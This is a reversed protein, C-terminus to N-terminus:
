LLWPNVSEKQAPFTWNVFFIGIFIFTGGLYVYWKVVEGLLIWGSLVGFLPALFLFASTKGPDGRNLLYFWASYQVISAMVALWLVIFISMANLTLVPKELTVSMLLLLVGGFMMQCASLVWINFQKAWKKVILTALAWSIASALGLVTGINVRVHFGLTIFVGAFGIVVGLWQSWRYRYGILLTGLVVVLLPNIFTLISIEGASITRMSIFVCGMVGATQFFGVLAIKGWDMLKEPLPKRIIFLAMLFGAISFRLGALLLPSIYELGMKGISFSSGMLLTTLIVLFGYLYRKM